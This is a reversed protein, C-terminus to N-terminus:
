DGCVGEHCPHAVESKNRVKDSQFDCLFFKIGRNINKRKNEEYGEIEKM